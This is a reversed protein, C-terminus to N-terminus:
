MHEHLQDWQSRTLIYEYTPFNKILPESYYFSTQEFVFGCKQLLGRSAENDQFCCACVCSTEGDSFLRTLVASVAESMLGRRHYESNLVFALEKAGAYEEMFDDSVSLHGIVRGTEKLVLACREPQEMFRRLLVDSEEMSQSHPWGAAELVGNQSCYAHLDCLDSDRFRRLFLRPTEFPEFTM